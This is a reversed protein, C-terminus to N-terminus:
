IDIIDSRSELKEDGEELIKSLTDNSIGSNSLSRLNDIIEEIGKPNSGAFSIHHNGNREMKGCEATNVNQNLVVMYSEYVKEPVSIIHVIKNKIKIPYCIIKISKSKKIDDKKTLRKVKKKM